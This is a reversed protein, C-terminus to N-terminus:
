HSLRESKLMPNLKEMNLIRQSPNYYNNVLNSLDVDSWFIRDNPMIGVHINSNDHAGNM